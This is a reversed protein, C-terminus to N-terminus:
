DIKDSTSLKEININEGILEELISFNENGRTPVTAKIVKDQM